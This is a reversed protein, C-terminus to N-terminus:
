APVNDDTYMKANQVTQYRMCEVEMWWENKQADIQHTVNIVRTIEGDISIIDNARMPTGYTEFTVTVKPRWTVRLKTVMNYVAAPSGLM